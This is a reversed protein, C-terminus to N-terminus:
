NTPNLKTLTNLHRKKMRMMTLIMTICQIFNIDARDKNNSNKM